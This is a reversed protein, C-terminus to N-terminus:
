DNRPGTDLDYWEGCKCLGIEGSSSSGDASSHRGVGVLSCPFLHSLQQKAPHHNRTELQNIVGNVIITDELFMMHNTNLLEDYSM